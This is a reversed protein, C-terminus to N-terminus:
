VLGEERLSKLAAPRALNRELFAKIYPFPTLDINVFNSWNLVVVAYADAITFRDAFLFERGDNLRDELISMKSKLRDVFKERQEPTADQYAFLPTFSKHLETSIFALLEHFKIREMSGAEPILKHDPYQEALYTLIVSSETLANDDDIQLFPVYGKPNISKFDIGSETKGTAKDYKESTFDAGIENLVIRTSLSCAGPMYVLKM